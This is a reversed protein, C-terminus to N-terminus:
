PKALVNLHVQYQQDNLVVSPEYQSVRQSVQKIEINNKDLWRLQPPETVQSNWVSWHNLWKEPENATQLEVRYIPLTNTGTNSVGYELIAVVTSSPNPFKGVVKWDFLEKQPEANGPFAFKYADISLSVLAIGGVLVLFNRFYIVAKM